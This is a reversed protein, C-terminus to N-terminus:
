PLVFILLLPLSVFTLLTSVLITGAIQGYPRDYRLAILYNFVAVPMSCELILVGREVGELNFLTALGLGVSFGVGLRLISLLFALKLHKVSLSSLSVGLAILMLPITFGGLLDTTGIVWKPVAIDSVKLFLAIGVAYVLPTKLVQTLSGTGSAIWVGVTFQLIAYIAFFALALTLGAEGFAFFCLPTGMNGVNPFVITPIYDRVKLRLIKLIIFGLVFFSALAYFAMLGFELFDSLSMKLQVLTTFILMPAGVNTVLGSITEMHFAYGRKSWFFGLGACFVVPAIINFLIEFM